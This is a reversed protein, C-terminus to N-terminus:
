RYALDPDYVQMHEDLMFNQTSSLLLWRGQRKVYTRMFFFKSQDENMVGDIIAIDDAVRVNVHTPVLSKIEYTRFLEIVEKKDRRAGWQNFGLYDDALIRDLAAVDKHIKAESFAAEVKLVETKTDPAAARVTAISIVLLLARFIARDMGHAYVQTRLSGLAIECPFFAPKLRM